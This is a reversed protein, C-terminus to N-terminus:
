RINVGRAEFTTDLVTTGQYQVAYPVLSSRPPPPRVELHFLDFFDQHERGTRLVFGVGYSGSVLPLRAIKGVFSAPREPGLLYPGKADRLDIMAVRAGAANNLVMHFDHISTQIPSSLTIEFGLPDGTTVPNPSLQLEVLQLGDTLAHSRVTDRTEAMRALYDAIM